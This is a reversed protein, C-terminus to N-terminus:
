ALRPRSLVAKRAPKSRPLKVPYGDFQDPLIFRLMRGPNCQAHIRLIRLETEPDRAAEVVLCNPFRGDLMRQLKRAAAQHKLHQSLGFTANFIVVLLFAASMQEQIEDLTIPSYVFKEATFWKEHLLGLFFFIIIAMSCKLCHVHRNFCKLFLYSYVLVLTTFTTASLIIELGRSHMM